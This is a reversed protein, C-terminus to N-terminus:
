FKGPVLNEFDLLLMREFNPYLDEGNYFLSRWMSVNTCCKTKFGMLGQMMHKWMFSAHPSVQGNQICDSTMLTGGDDPIWLIAELMKTGKFIVIKCDDIPKEGDETLFKDAKGATSREGLEQDWFVAKFTDKYYLDDVGHSHCIRVINKITGLEKIKAEVEDNVRVSNIITLDDGRKVIAMTRGIRNGPLMNFSGQVAWVNDSVKELEGHPTVPPYKKVAAAASMITFPKTQNTQSRVKQNHANPTPFRKKSYCHSYPFFPTILVVSSFVISSYTTTSCTGKHHVILVYKYVVQVIIIIVDLMM